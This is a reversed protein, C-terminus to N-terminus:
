WFATTPVFGLSTPHAWLTTRVDGTVAVSPSDSVIGMAMTPSQSKAFNKFTGCPIDVYAKSVGRQRYRMIRHPSAVHPFDEKARHRWVVGISNLDNGLRVSGIGYMTTGQLSVVMVM